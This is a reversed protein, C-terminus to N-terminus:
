TVLVSKPKTRNKRQIAEAYHDPVIHTFILSVSALCFQPFNALESSKIYGRPAQLSQLYSLKKGCQYCHFYDPCANWLWKIM